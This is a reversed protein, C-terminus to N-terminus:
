GRVIAPPQNGAAYRCAPHLGFEIGGGRREILAHLLDPYCSPRGGAHQRAQKGAFGRARADHARVLTHPAMILPSVASDMRSLACAAASTSTRLACIGSM